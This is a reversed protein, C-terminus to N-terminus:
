MRTSITLLNGSLIAKVYVNAGGLGGLWSVDASFKATKDTHNLTINNLTGGIIWYDYSYAKIIQSQEINNPINVDIFYSIGMYPTTAKVQYTSKGYPFLHQYSFVSVKDYNMSESLTFPEVIFTIEKGFEDVISMEQKEQNSLDFQVAIEKENETEETVSRESAYSFTEYFGFVFINTLFITLTLIKKM